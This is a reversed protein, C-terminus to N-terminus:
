ILVATTWIVGYNYHMCWVEVGCQVMVTVSASCRWEVSCMLIVVGICRREV